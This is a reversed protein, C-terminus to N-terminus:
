QYSLIAHFTEKDDFNNIYYETCIEASNDKTLTPDAYRGFKPVLQVLRRVSQLHVIDGMREQNSRFHRTVLFMDIGPEPYPILEDNPGHEVYRNSYQFYQGYLLIPAKTNQIPFIPQFIIRVQM